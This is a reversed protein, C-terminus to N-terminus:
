PLSMTVILSAAQNVSPVYLYSSTTLYTWNFSTSVSPPVTQKFGEAQWVGREGAKWINTERSGGVPLKEM